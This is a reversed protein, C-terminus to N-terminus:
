YNLVRWSGAPMSRHRAVTSLCSLATSSSSDESGLFLVAKAIEDPTGARGLPTTDVIQAKFEEIQEDSMGPENKYGPTIVTGLSVVNVRIKRERLDVSWSRAFLRLAAKSAAYVSFAANRQDFGDLCQDRDCRRRADAAAGEACHVAHGERQYRIDFHAESIQGLPAFEGLGANAFLVDIRDRQEKVAAFLRDLDGLKSIDSQVATANAGLQRVAEDLEIQRRGTIFVHAGEEVFRKATALGIGSSGGTIVAVKGTPKNM